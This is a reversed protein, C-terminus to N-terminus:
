CYCILREAFPVGAVVDPGVHVLHSQVPVGDHQRPVRVAEDAQLGERDSPVVSIFCANTLPLHSLETYFSLHM